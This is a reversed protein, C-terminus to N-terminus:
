FFATKTYFCKKAQLKYHYMIYYQLTCLLHYFVNSRIISFVLINHTDEWFSNNQMGFPYSESPLLIVKATCFLLKQFVDKLCVM